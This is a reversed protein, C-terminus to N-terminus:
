RKIREGKLSLIFSSPAKDESLSFPLPHKIFGAVQLVGAGASHQANYDAGQM